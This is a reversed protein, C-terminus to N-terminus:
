KFNYKIHYKQEHFSVVIVYSNDLKNFKIYLSVTKIHGGFRPMLEVEKGFVYLIEESYAPHDNPEAECFDEACLGLLIQERETESIIYELFLEENKDRSSVQYRGERIAKKVEEIYICVDKKELDLM